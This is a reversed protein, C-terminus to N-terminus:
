QGDLQRATKTVTDFVLRKDCAFSWALDKLNTIIIALRYQTRHTWTLKHGPGIKLTM